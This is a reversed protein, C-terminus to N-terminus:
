TSFSFFRASTYRRQNLTKYLRACVKKPGLMAGVVVKLIGAELNEKKVVLRGGLQRQDQGSASRQALVQAETCIDMVEAGMLQDGCLGAMERSCQLLDHETHERMKKIHAQFIEGLDAITPRSVFVRGDLRGPRLLTEDVDEEKEARAIVVVGASATAIGDLEKLLQRLATPCERGPLWKLRHLDPIFIICPASATARTFVEKIQGDAGDGANLSFFPVGAEGAVARALLCRGTGPPGVILIGTFVPAGLEKFNKLFEVCDYLEEKAAHCGGVGEFCVQMVDVFIVWLCM